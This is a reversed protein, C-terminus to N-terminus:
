LRYGDFHCIGHRNEHRSQNDSHGQAQVDEEQAQTGDRVELSLLAEMRERKVEDKREDEKQTIFRSPLFRM